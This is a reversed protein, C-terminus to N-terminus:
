NRTALVVEPLKEVGSKAATPLRRTGPTSSPWSPCLQRRILGVTEAVVLKDSERVQLIKIADILWQEIQIEIVNRRLRIGVFHLGRNALRDGFWRFVGSATVDFM